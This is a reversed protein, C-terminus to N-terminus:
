GHWRRAARRVVEPLLHNEEEIRRLWTADNGLGNFGKVGFLGVALTGFVGNALHVSTAGVPDDIKMRDFLLVSEIVLM